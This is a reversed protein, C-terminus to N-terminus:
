KLILIILVYDVNIVIIIMKMMMMLLLLNFVAIFITKRLHNGYYEEGEYIDLALKPFVSLLVRTIERFVHLYSFLMALHIISEGVSGRKKLDWCAEHEEFDSNSRDKQIAKSNREKAAGREPVCTKNECTFSQHFM